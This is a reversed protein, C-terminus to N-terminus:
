KNIDQLLLIHVLIHGFKIILDVKVCLTQVDSKLCIHIKITKRFSFVAGLVFKILGKGKGKRLGPQDPSM